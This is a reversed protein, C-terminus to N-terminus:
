KSDNPIWSDTAKEIADKITPDSFWGDKAGAQLPNFMTPTDTATLQHQATMM